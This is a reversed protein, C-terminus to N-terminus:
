LQLVFRGGATEPMDLRVGYIEEIFDPTVVDEPAGRAAVRGDKLGIIEDSYRMAQNIDHLVMVITVGYEENLRRILRLIEVQYKIDLWTTPEDLLMTDTDQALAMAIWVRQRQGGSLSSLKRDRFDAVDAIDMAREIIRGDEDGAKEFFSLFPTRGYSVLTEVTVDGFTPNAQHVISLKRAYDRLGIKRIDTGEFFIGGDKVPLNKSMLHFLTSKGSGNAGLVTTVTGARIGFGVDDLVLPAPTAHAAHRGRDASATSAGSGSRGTPEHGRGHHHGYWFSLGKVELRFERAM